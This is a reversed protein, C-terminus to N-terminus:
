SEKKDTKVMLDPRVARTIQESHQERWRSIEQHNGSLLIPPIERGEFVQPRTYHPHELLGSEHSEYEGSVANGMVGPILRIIADLLVLAAPEGGSM